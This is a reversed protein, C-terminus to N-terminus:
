FCERAVGFFTLEESAKNDEDWGFLLYYYRVRVHARWIAGPYTSTDFYVVLRRCTYGHTM